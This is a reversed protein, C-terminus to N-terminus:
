SLKELGFATGYNMFIMGSHPYIKFILCVNVTEVAKKNKNRNWQGPLGHNFNKLM